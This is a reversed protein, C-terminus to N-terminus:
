SKRTKQGLFHTDNSELTGTLRYNFTYSEEALGKVHPQQKWFPV